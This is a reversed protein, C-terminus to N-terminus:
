KKFAKKVDKRNYILEGIMTFFSAGGVLATPASFMEIASMIVAIILLFIALVPHKKMVKFFSFILTLQIILALFLGGVVLAGSVPQNSLALNNLIEGLSM